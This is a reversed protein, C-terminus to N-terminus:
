TPCDLSDPPVSSHYRLPRTSLIDGSKILLGPWNSGINGPFYKGYIYLEDPM